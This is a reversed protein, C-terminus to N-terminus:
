DARRGGSMVTTPPTPDWGLVFEAFNQATTVASLRWQQSGQGTNVEQQEFEAQYRTLDPYLGSFAVPVLTGASESWKFERSLDVSQEASPHGKNQSSNPDVQATSDGSGSAIHRGDPSWAVSFVPGLPITSTVLRKGTTANWVQLTNDNSGSVIRTGDPSWALQRVGTTHGSYTLLLGGRSADWVQVTSDDGGSAIRKGDPSWAVAFVLSTHGHYATISAGQAPSSATPSVSSLAPAPTCAAVLLFLCLRLWRVHRWGAAPLQMQASRQHANSRPEGGRSRGTRQQAM